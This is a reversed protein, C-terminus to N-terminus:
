LIEPSPTKGYFPNDKGACKGKRSKSIREKTEESHLRGPSGEGGGQLNYSLGLSRYYEIEAIEVDITDEESYLTAIIEFEFNEEEYKNWANQLYPNQHNNRKLGSWHDQKRKHPNRSKGVYVMSNIKNKILYIYSNVM